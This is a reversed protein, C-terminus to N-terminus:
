HGFADHFFHCKYSSALFNHPTVAIKWIVLKHGLGSPLYLLLSRSTNLEVPNSFNGLHYVLNLDFCRYMYALAETQAHESNLERSKQLGESAYDCNLQADAIYEKM